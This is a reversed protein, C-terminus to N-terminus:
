RKAKSDMDIAKLLENAIKDAINASASGFGRASNEGVWIIRDDWTVLKFAATAAQGYINEGVVGTLIADARQPDVVVTLRGSKVLRNSLKERVLAAAESSGLSGIAVTKLDRLRQISRQDVTENLARPPNRAAVGINLGPTCEISVM